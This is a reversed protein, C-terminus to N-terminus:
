SRKSCHSKHRKSYTRIYRCAFRRIMKEYRKRHYKANKLLAKEDAALTLLPKKRRKRWRNKRKYRRQKRILRTYVSHVKRTRKDIIILRQMLRIHFHLERRENPFIYGDASAYSYVHKYQRVMYAYVKKLRRDRFRVKKPKALLLDEKTYAKKNKKAHAFPLYFLTSLLVTLVFWKKQKAVRAM